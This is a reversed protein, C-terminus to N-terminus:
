RPYWPCYSNSLQRCLEWISRSPSDHRSLTVHLKTRSIEWINQLCPLGKFRRTSQNTNWKESHAAGTLQSCLQLCEATGPFVSQPTQIHVPLRRTIVVEIRSQRQFTDWCLKIWTIGSFIVQRCPTLLEVSVIRLCNHRIGVIKTHEEGARKHFYPIRNWIGSVDSTDV